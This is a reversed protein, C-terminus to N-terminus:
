SSERSLQAPSANAALWTRLAELVDPTAVGTDTPVRLFHSAMDPPVGYFDDGFALWTNIAYTFSHRLISGTRWTGDRLEGLRGPFRRTTGVVRERLQKPLMAITREEGLTRTWSTTLVLQVHPYPRLTDALLSAFRFPQAGSDLTVTGAGDVVGEGLHLVSSFGAYIAPVEPDIPTRQDQITM